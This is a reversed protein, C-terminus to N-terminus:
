QNRWYSLIRGCTEALLHTPQWGLTAIKKNDAVLYPVDLPRFKDPDTTVVIPVTAQDLLLQLADKMVIGMGSGVNYIEGPQGENMLLQYARVIDKVDTLDRVAELNGVKLEQAEGREIAVIQQAFAPLAFDNTQREGTHNFARVMVINLHYTYHYALSLLEQTVKSVGYPNSPGLPHTESLLQTPSTLKHPDYGQASGISLLRAQPCSTKVAELVSLQIAVNKQITNLPNGHSTGVAALSALHYIHDPQLQTFLQATQETDELNIHHIQDPPLKELFWAEPQTYSTVHVELESNTLLLELLHSGVFGTGGTILVKKM